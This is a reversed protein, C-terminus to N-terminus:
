RVILRKAPRSYAARNFDDALKFARMYFRGKTTMKVTLSYSGNAKVRTSKWVKWVGHVRKMIRVKTGTGAVGKSTKVTGSYKVKTGARINTKSQKFTVKWPMRVVVGTKAIEAQGQAAGVIDVTYAWNHIGFSGETEVFEVNTFASLFAREAATWTNSPKAVLAPQAEDVDAYGMNVAAEDLLTWIEEIQAHTWAQRQEIRPQLYTAYPDDPANGGHCTSCASYPMSRDDANPQMNAAVEPEIITFTHNAGLNPGRSSAAATPPMHCQVCSQEHVSPRQKVGIAGYGAMMEKMPHHIATGPTAQKGVALEGNHCDTCLDSPHDPNGVLQPEFAEDWVGKANGAVHPTHCGVCTIGYKAEAGTPPTKGAEEAIRYDASHCELCSAPPNPGMVAKLDDLSTAHGENAWEPYQAANGDHGDAQWRTDNGEADKWYTMTSSGAAPDPTPTWGPTPVNLVTDLGAPMWEPSEGLPKYGMAYQPQLITTPDPNPIPSGSGDLALYPVATVPYTDVTYSYRSHCQGCIEANALNQNPAAHTTSAGYHCSSCGVFPESYPAEGDAQAPFPDPIMAGWSVTTATPSPSPTVSTATPTPVVKSPDYNGTHCGGCSSGYPLRAGQGHSGAVAHGTESWEGAVAPHCGTCLEAPSYDDRFGNFAMAPVALVLFAAVVFAVITVRKFM